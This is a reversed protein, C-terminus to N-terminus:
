FPFFLFVSLYTNPPKPLLMERTQSRFEAVPLNAVSGHPQKGSLNRRDALVFDIFSFKTFQFYTWLQKKIM